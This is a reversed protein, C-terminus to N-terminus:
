STLIGDIMSFEGRLLPQKGGIYYLNFLINSGCVFRDDCVNYTIGLYITRRPTTVKLSRVMVVAAVARM